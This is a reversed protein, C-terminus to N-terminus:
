EGDSINDEIKKLARRLHRKITDKDRDLREAVQSIPLGDQYILSLLYREYKSLVEYLAQKPNLIWNLDMRAELNEFDPEICNNLDIFEELTLSKDGSRPEVTKSMPAKAVANFWDKIRFRFLKTLPNLADVGDVIYYKNLVELFVLTIHAKLDERSYKELVKVAYARQQSLNAADKPKDKGIFMRLFLRTDNNRLDLTGGSFINVYKEFYGDFQELIRAQAEYRLRPDGSLFERVNQNLAEKDWNHTGTKKKKSM